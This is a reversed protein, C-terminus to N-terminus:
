ATVPSHYLDPDDGVFATQKRPQQGQFYLFTPVRNHESVQRRGAVDIKRIYPGVFTQGTSEPTFDQGVNYATGRAEITLTRVALIRERGGLAAAARDLPSQGR